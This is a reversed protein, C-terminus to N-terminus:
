ANVSMRGSPQGVTTPANPNGQVNQWNQSSLKSACYADLAAVGLVALTSGVLRRKNGDYSIFSAGLYALDLVDGGVRTWVATTPKASKLIGLGHAIERLGLAPLFSRHSRSIGALEGLQSPMLVEALGLAISFYGIGKAMTVTALNEPSRYKLEVFSDSTQDVSNANADTHTNFPRHGLPQAEDVGTGVNQFDVNM